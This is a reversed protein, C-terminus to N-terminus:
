GYVVGGHVPIVGTPHSYIVPGPHPHYHITAPVVVRTPAAVAVKPATAAVPVAEVTETTAPKTIQVQSRVPQYTKETKSAEYATAQYTGEPVQFLADAPSSPKTGPENTSVSVRFGGEDAIYSVIRVRGDTDKLGYSGQKRGEADGSERQFAGEGAPFTWDYGYQYAGQGQTKAYSRRIFLAPRQHLISKDRRKSSCCARGVSSGAVARSGLVLSIDVM